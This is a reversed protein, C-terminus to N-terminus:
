FCHSANDSHWSESVAAYARIMKAGVRIEYATYFARDDLPPSHSSAPDMLVSLESREANQLASWVDAAHGAKSVYHFHRPDTTLTFRIALVVAGFALLIIGLSVQAGRDAQRAEVLFTAV